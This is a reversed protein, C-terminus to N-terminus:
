ITKSYGHHEKYTQVLSVITDIEEQSYLRMTMSSTSKPIIGDREYRLLTKYSFPLHERKLALQLFQKTFVGSTMFM